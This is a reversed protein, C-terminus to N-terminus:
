DRSGAAGDLGKVSDLMMATLLEDNRYQAIKVPLYDLKPVVWFVTRRSSGEHQQELVTADFTGADVELTEPGEDTYRYTSPEDGDTYEYPGPLEDRKLDLMIAVLITGADLLNPELSLETSEDDRWVTATGRKWDFVIHRDDEGKRTGDDLWFQLPRISGDHIVFDTTQVSAKPRLLRLIGSAQTRSEFRYQEQKADYRVSLEAKGVKHGKYEVKYHADFTPVEADAAHAALAGCFAALAGAALSWRTKTATIM